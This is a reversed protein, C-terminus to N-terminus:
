FLETESSIYSMHGTTRVATSPPCGMQGLCLAPYLTKIKDPSQQKKNGATVGGCSVMKCKKM